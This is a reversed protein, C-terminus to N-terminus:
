VHVTTMEKAKLVIGRLHKRSYSNEAWTNELLDRYLRAEEYYPFQTRKIIESMNTSPYNDLLIMLMGLGESGAFQGLMLVHGVKEADYICSERRHVIQLGKLSM